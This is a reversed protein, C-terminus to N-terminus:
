IIGRSLHWILEVMETSDENNIDPIYGEWKVTRTGRDSQEYGLLYEKGTTEGNVVDRPAQRIFRSNSRSKRV